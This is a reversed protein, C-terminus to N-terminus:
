PMRWPRKLRHALCIIALPGKGHCMLRDHMHRGHSSWCSPGRATQRTTATRCTGCLRGTGQLHGHRGEGSCTAAACRQSSQCSLAVACRSCRPLVLCAQACCGQLLCVQACNTQPLHGLVLATTSPLVPALVQACVCTRM